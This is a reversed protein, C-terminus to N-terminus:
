FRVSATLAPPAPARASPALLERMVGHPEVQYVLREPAPPAPPMAKPRPALYALALAAALGAAPLAAVRWWDTRARSPPAAFLADMRREFEAPPPTLRAARLRQEFQSDDNM